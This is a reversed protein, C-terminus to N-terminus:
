EVLGPLLHYDGCDVVEADNPYVQEDLSDLGVQVDLITGAQVDVTIRAPQPQEHEPLIVRTSKFITVRPSTSM